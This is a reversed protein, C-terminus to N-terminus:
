PGSLISESEEGKDQVCPRHRRSHRQAGWGEYVPSKEGTVPGSLDGDDNSAVQWVPAVFVPPHVLEDDRVSSSDSGDSGGGGKEGRDKYKYM